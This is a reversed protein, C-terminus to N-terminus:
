GELPTNIVFAQKLTIGLKIDIFIGINDHTSYRRAEKPVITSRYNLLRKVM